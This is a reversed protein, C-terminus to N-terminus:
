FIFRTGNSHPCTPLSYLNKLEAESLRPSSYLKRTPQPLAKFLESVKQQTLIMQLHTPYVGQYHQRLPGDCKEIDELLQGMMHCNELFYYRFEKIDDPNCAFRYTWDVDSGMPSQPSSIKAAVVLSGCAIVQPPYQLSFQFQFSDNTLHWALKAIERPCELLRAIHILLHTPHVFSFQYCQVALLHTELELCRQRLSEAQQPNSKRNALQAQAPFHRSLIQEGTQIIEHLKKITDEEKGALFICALAIEQPSFEEATSKFLNLLQFIHLGRNITTSPLGLQLSTRIIIASILSRFQFLQQPATHPNFQKDSAAMEARTFFRKPYRSPTFENEKIEGVPRLGGISAAIQKPIVPSDSRHWLRGPNKSLYDDINELANKFDEPNM